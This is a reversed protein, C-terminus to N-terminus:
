VGAAGSASGQPWNIDAFTVFISHSSDVRSPFVEAGCMEGDRRGCALSCRLIFRTGQHGM